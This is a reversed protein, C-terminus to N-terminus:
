NDVSVRVDTVSKLKADNVLMMLMRGRKNQITLYELEYSMALCTEVFYRLFLLERKTSIAARSKIFEALEDEEDWDAEDSGADDDDLDGQPISSSSGDDDDDDAQQKEPVGQNQDEEESDEMLVSNRLIKDNVSRHGKRDWELGDEDPRPSNAM